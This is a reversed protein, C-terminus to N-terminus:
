LVYHVIILQGTKKEAQRKSKSKQVVSDSSDIADVSDSKSDPAKHQRSRACKQCTVPQELCPMDTYFYLPNSSEYKWM